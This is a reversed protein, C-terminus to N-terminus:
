GSQALSLLYQYLNRSGSNSLRDTSYQHSTGLEGGSRVFTIFDEETLDFQLLSKGDSTGAGNEGHCIGCELAEYRGRGRGVLKADLEIGATPATESDSDSTAFVGETTPEIYAFTPFPTRTPPPVTPTAAPGSSCAALIPAICLFAALGFINSRKM